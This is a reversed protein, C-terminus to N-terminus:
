VVWASDHALKAASFAKKISDSVAQGFPSKYLAYATSLTTGVGIAGKVFKEGKAFDNPSLSKYQQELQLRTTLEKLEKTSLNKTGKRKLERSTVYDESGSKEKKSGSPEEKKARRVGWKMGLIGHHYLEARM